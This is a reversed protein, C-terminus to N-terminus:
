PNSTEQTIIANAVAYNKIHSISIHIDFKQQNFNKLSCYPKGHTDNLVEVDKFDLRAKNMAKFVAEKAAFRGALHQFRNNHESAIKLEKDTFIRELFTRGHRNIANKIRRVEIIDVGNGVINM